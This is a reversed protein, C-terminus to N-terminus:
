SIMSNTDKLTDTISSVVLGVKTMSTRATTTSESILLIPTTDAWCIPKELIRQYRFTMFLHISATSSLSVHFLSLPLLLSFPSSYRQM